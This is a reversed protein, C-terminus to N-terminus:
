RLDFNYMYDKLFSQYISAPFADNHYLTESSFDMIIPITCSTVGRNSKSKVFKKASEDVNTSGLIPFVVMKNYFGRPLGRYNKVAYDFCEKSFKEMTEKTVYECNGVISFIKLKSFLWKMRFVEDYAVRTGIGCIYVDRIEVDGNAVRLKDMVKTSYYLYEIM